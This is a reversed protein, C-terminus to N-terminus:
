VVEKDLKEENTVRTRERLFRLSEITAASIDDDNETGKGVGDTEDRGM